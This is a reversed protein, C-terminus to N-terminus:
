YIAWINPLQNTGAALLLEYMYEGVSKGLFFLFFVLEYLAATELGLHCTSVPGASYHLQVTAKGM